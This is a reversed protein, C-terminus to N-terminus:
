GAYGTEELLAPGGHAVWAHECADDWVDGWASPSGTRTNWDRDHHQYIGMGDGTVHPPLDEYRLVASRGRWGLYSRYVEVFACGWFDKLAQPIGYIMGDERRRHRCYSVLVNRPDRFITLIRFGTLDFAAPAHALIYCNDPVHSLAAISMTPISSVHLGDGLPLITGPVRKLGMTDLLAM